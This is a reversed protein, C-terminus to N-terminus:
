SENPRLMSKRGSSALRKYRDRLNELVEHLTSKSRDLIKSIESLSYGETRLRILEYEFGTLHLLKKVDDLHMHMWTPHERSYRLDWLEREDVTYARPLSELGEESSKRRRLESEPIRILDNERILRRVANDIAASLYGKPHRPIKRDFIEVLTFLATALIDDRLQPFKAM